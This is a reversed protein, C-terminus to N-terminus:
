THGESMLRMRMRLQNEAEQATISAPCKDNEIRKQICVTCVPLLRCTVCESCFKRTRYLRGKETETVSGDAELIGTRNDRLFDRATCKFVDGNYNVVTSSDHDAYCHTLLQQCATDKDFGKSQIYEKIKQEKETLGETPKEQWIRQISFSIKDKYQESFTSIDDALEKFSDINEATYNCRITISFGKAITRRINDLVIEYTGNGGPMAKTKDHLRRGGDFPIQFHIDVDLDALSEILKESLLVGNSTFNVNLRKERESCIRSIERILPIAIDYAKLLPEGGFFGLCVTHLDNKRTELDALRVIRKMTDEDMYRGHTHTEYCYWCRLNCDLTPNVTLHFIGSSALKEKTKQMALVAEDTENEVLFGNECLARYLDPHIDKIEDAKETHEKVIEHLIPLLVLISDTFYNYLLINGDKTHNTM